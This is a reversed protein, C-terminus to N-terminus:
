NRAQQMMPQVMGAIAGYTREREDPKEGYFDRALLHWVQWFAAM